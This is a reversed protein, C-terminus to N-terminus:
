DIEEPTPPLGILDLSLRRLLTSREAIPAPSLHEKELHAQIFQDISNRVHVASKVVPLPARKPPVFSWHVDSQAAEDAPASAGEDIWKEILAIQEDSLAPKKYPMQSISDHTGKLAQILISEKAKGPAFAAGNEGGKALFAATDARM